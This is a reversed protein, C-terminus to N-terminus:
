PAAGGEVLVKGRLQRIKQRLDEGERVWRVEHYLLVLTICWSMALATLIVAASLSEFVWLYDLVLRRWRAELVHAGLAPTALILRPTAVLGGLVVAMGLFLGGLVYVALGERLIRRSRRFVRPEDEFLTVLPALCTRPWVWLLPVGLFVLSLLWVPALRAFVSFLRGARRGCWAFCERPTLTQGGAQGWAFVAGPLPLVTFVILAVWPLAVAGILFDAWGPLEWTRWVGILIVAAAAMAGLTPLALPVMVDLHEHICWFARDVQVFTRGVLSAQERAM